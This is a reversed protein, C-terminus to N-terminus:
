IISLNNWGAGTLDLWQAGSQSNFTIGSEVYSSSIVAVQNGVVTWGAIGASGGGYTAFLGVTVPPNEFSGNNVTAQASTTVGGIVLAGCALMARRATTFNMSYGRRPALVFM